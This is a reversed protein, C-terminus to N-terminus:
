RKQKEIKYLKEIGKAEGFNEEFYSRKKVMFNEESEIKINEQERSNLELIINRIENLRKIYEKHMYKNEYLIFRDANDSFGDASLWLKLDITNSIFEDQLEKNTKETDKENTGKSKTKIKLKPVENVILIEYEVLQWYIKEPEIREYAAEIKKYIELKEFEKYKTKLNGFSKNLEETRKGMAELDKDSKEIYIQLSRNVKMFLNIYEFNDFAKNLESLYKVIAESQEYVDKYFQNSDKLFEVIEKIIAISIEDKNDELLKLIKAYDSTEEVKEDVRGISFKEHYIEDFEKKVSKGGALVKSIDAELELKKQLELHKKIDYTKELKELCDNYKININDLSKVIQNLQAKYDSNKWEDVIENQIKNIELQFDDIMEKKAYYINEIPTNKDSNGNKIKTLVFEPFNSNSIDLKNIDISEEGIKEALHNLSEVLIAPYIQKIINDKINEKQKGSNAFIIDVEQTKFELSNAFYKLDSFDNSKIDVLKLCSELEKIREIVWKIDVPMKREIFEFVRKLKEECEESKDIESGIESCAAFYLVDLWIDIYKDMDNLYSIEFQEFLKLNQDLTFVKFNFLTNIKSDKLGIKDLDEIKGEYNIFWRKFKDDVNARQKLLEEITKTPELLNEIFFALYYYSFIKRKVKKLLKVTDIKDDSSIEFEKALIYCLEEIEGYKINVIVSDKCEFEFCKRLQIKDNSFIDNSDTLVEVLKVLSEKKQYNSENTEKDILDRSEKLFTLINILGRPKDDFLMSFLDLNEKLKSKEGNFDKILSQNYALLEEKLQIKKTEDGSTFKFRNARSIEVLYYRYAPTLLKKLFDGALKRRNDIATEHSSKNFNKELYLNKELIQDKRLYNLLIREEFNEYDGAIFIMINSRSLYMIISELLKVSNYPILDLDDFFIFIIPETKSYGDNLKVEEKIYKIFVDIFENFRNWLNVDSNLYEIFDRQYEREGEYHEKLIERYDRGRKIYASVWKEYVEKIPCVNNQPRCCREFNAHKKYSNIESCIKSKQEFGFEDFEKVREDVEGKFYGILWGVLDNSEMIEPMIMPLLIDKRYSHENNQKDKDLSKEALDCDIKERVDRRISKLVSSKGSGRKGLISIINDHYKTSDTSDKQKEKNKNNCDFTEVENFKTRIMEIDNFINEYSPLILKLEEKSLTKSGIRVSSNM